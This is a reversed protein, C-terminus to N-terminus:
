FSIKESTDNLSICRSYDVAVITGVIHYNLAGLLELSYKEEKQTDIDKLIIYNPQFLVQRISYLGDYYIIVDNKSHAINDLKVLMLSNIPYKENTRCLPEALFYSYEFKDSIYKESLYEFGITVGMNNIIPIKAKDENVFKNIDLNNIIFYLEKQYDQSLLPITSFRKYFIKNNKTKCRKYMLNIRDKLRSICHLIMDFDSSSFLKNVECKYIYNEYDDIDKQSLIEKCYELFIKYIVYHYQNLTFNYMSFIYYYFDYYSEPYCLKINIFDKILFEKEINTFFIQEDNFYIGNLFINHMFIIYEKEYKSFNLTSEEIINNIDKIDIILHLYSNIHQQKTRNINYIGLAEALNKKLIEYNSHCFNKQQLDVKLLKSLENLYRPLIERKGQEWLGVLSSSVKLHQAIYNQTIKIGTKKSCEKRAEKLKKAIYMNFELKSKSM